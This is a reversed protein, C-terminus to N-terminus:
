SVDVFVERAAQKLAEMMQRYPGPGHSIRAVGLRALEAAPPTDPLVMINVPIPSAECLKAIFARDRLGPAFLGSAGAAAYAATRRIAEDLQHEDHKAPYTKLFVDTRANIFFPIAAQEAVERISAIRSSQEEISYLGEGGVVQDEFNMGIAGTAILAKINEKLDPQATAYGGEFDISVPLEVAAVIRTANALAVELPLEEGDVFGNAAAVSWSGTAIAQAGAEEVAKASGADWINFLIVPDGKVHLDRFREAKEKQTTVQGERSLTNAVIKKKYLIECLRCAFEFVQCTIPSVEVPMGNTRPM